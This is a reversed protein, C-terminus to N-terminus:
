KILRPIVIDSFVLITLWFTFTLISPATTCNISTIEFIPHLMSLTFPATSTTRLRVNIFTVVYIVHFFTNSFKCPDATVNVFSLIFLILTVSVSFHVPCVAAMVLSVPNFSNLMAKATHYKWITGSFLTIKFVVCKFDVNIRVLLASFWTVSFFFLIFHTLNCFSYM